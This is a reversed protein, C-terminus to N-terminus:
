ARLLDNAISERVANVRVKGEGNQIHSHAATLGLLTKDEVRIATDLVGGGRVTLPQSLPSNALAHGSLPIGIVIGDSLIEEAAEFTLAYMQTM